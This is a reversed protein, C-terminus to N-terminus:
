NVESRSCWTRSINKHSSEENFGTGLVNYYNMDSLIDSILYLVTSEIIILAFYLCLISYVMFVNLCTVEYTRGIFVIKIEYVFGSM